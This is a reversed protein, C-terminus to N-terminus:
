PDERAGEALRRALHFELSPVPSDSALVDRRWPGPVLGASRPAPHRLPDPLPLPAFRADLAVLSEMPVPEGSGDIISERRSYLYTATALGITADPGPTGLLIRREDEAETGRPARALRALDRGRLAAAAPDATATRTEGAAGLLTPWVDELSALRFSVGPADAPAPTPARWLIPIRHRELSLPPHTVDGILAAVLVGQRTRRGLAAQIRALKLDVSRLDDGITVHVWAFRPSPTGRAWREIALAIADPDRPPIGDEYRDFGQDLRRTRNLRPSTMFAATGYGIRSLREAITEFRDALFSAGDDRMSHLEPPLGTQVTAAASAEGRGASVAWAFRVGGDALACLGSGPAAVSDGDPTRFCELDAAPLADLTVLLLDPRDPAEETCGSAL